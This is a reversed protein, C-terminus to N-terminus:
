VQNAGFPIVQDGFIIVSIEVLITDNVRVGYNLNTPFNENNTLSIFRGDVVVDRPLSVAGDLKVEPESVGLVGLEVTVYDPDLELPIDFSLLGDQVTYNLEMSDLLVTLDSLSDNVTLEVVTQNPGAPHLAYNLESANISSEIIVRPPTYMVESANFLEELLEEGLQENSKGKAYAKTINVVTATFNGGSPISAQQFSIYGAGMGDVVKQFLIAKVYDGKELGLDGFLAIGALASSKGPPNSSYERLLTYDRVLGQLSSRVEEVADGTETFRFMLYSESAEISASSVNTYNTHVIENMVSYDPVYKPWVLLYDTGGQIELVVSQNGIRMVQYELIDPLDGAVGVENPSDFLYVGSLVMVVAVLIIMLKNRSENSKKTSETKKKSKNRAM